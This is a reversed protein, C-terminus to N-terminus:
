TVHQIHVSISICSHLVTNSNSQNFESLQYWQKGIPYHSPSHLSHCYTCLVTTYQRSTLSPRCSFFILHCNLPCLYSHDSPHTINHYFVSNWTSCCFLNCHYPCTNRFFFSQTFFHISYSTSPKLHLPLVFLVQLLPAFLSDPVYVSCLFISHVTASPPLQYLIASSWSLHSHTFTEEPVPESPYDWVFPWLITKDRCGFWQLSIM